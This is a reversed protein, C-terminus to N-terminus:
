FRLSFGLAASNGNATNLPIVSLRVALGDENFSFRSSRNRAVWTGVAYGMAGGWLVDSVYHYDDLVLTTVLFAAGVHLLARAWWLDTYEGIVGVLSYLTAAHGSPTGAPVISLGAFPGRILGYESARRPGERGLLAKPVVHFFQSVALAEVSLSTLEVWESRDTMWGVGGLALLSGYIPTWIFLENVTNWVVVPRNEVPGFTRQVVNQIRVDLSQMPPEPTWMLTGIVFTWGLLEAVEHSEWRHLNAPIAIFDAGVRYVVNMNPQRYEDGLLIGPDARQGTPVGPQSAETADAPQAALSFAALVFLMRVSM